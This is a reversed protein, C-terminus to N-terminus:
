RPTASAATHPLEPTPLSTGTSAQPLPVPRRKTGALEAVTQEINRAIFHDFYNWTGYIAQLQKRVNQQLTNGAESKSQATAIADRLTVLYDRFARVATAQGSEGHGPVFTAAPYDHLLVANTHVQARTDADILNPLSHNWFLDGTFVVNADPIVVVSDGGTHGPLVRV